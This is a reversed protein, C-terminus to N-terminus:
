RRLAGRDQDLMAQFERSLGYVAGPRNLEMKVILRTRAMESRVVPALSIRMVSTPRGNWRALYLGAGLTPESRMGFQRQAIAILKRHDDTTGHLTIRQVQSHKDFYYTISGALDGLETGTVLPVRIGEMTLESLSTSVRSWRQLIWQRDIDFRVVEELQDIQLGVLTPLVRPQGDNAPLIQPLGELMGTNNLGTSKKIVEVAKVAPKTVEQLKTRVGEDYYLIPGGVATALAVPYFMRRLM